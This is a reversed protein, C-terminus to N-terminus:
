SIIPVYDPPLDDRHENVGYEIIHAHIRFMQGKYELCGVRMPRSEPFPDKGNQHQFGLRDLTNRAESLQSQPYLVALDVVGKGSCGPIATSGVHEITLTPNISKILRSLTEMVEYVLNNYPLYEAEKKKYPLINM